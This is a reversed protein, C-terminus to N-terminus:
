LLIVQDPPNGSLAVYPNPFCGIRVWEAVGNVTRNM